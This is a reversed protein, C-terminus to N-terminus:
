QWCPANRVSGDPCTVNVWIAGTADLGETNWTMYSGSRGAYLWVSNTLNAGRLNAGDVRGTTEITAGIFSASPAWVENLAEMYLEPQKLTAGNFNAGKLDDTWMRAYVQSGSFNAGTFDGFMEYFKVNMNSWNSGRFRGSTEINDVRAGSFKARDWNGRLETWVMKAGAFKAGQGKTTGNKGTYNVFKTYELNADSFNARRFDGSLEKKYFDRGSLNAGRCTAKIKAPQCKPKATPEIAHSAGVGTMSVAGALVAVAVFSRMSRLPKIM